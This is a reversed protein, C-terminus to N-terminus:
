RWGSGNWPSRACGPRTRRRCSSGRWAPSCGCWDSPASSSGRPSRAAASGCCCRPRTARPRHFPRAPIRRRATRWLPSTRRLSAGTQPRRTGAQDSGDANSRRGGRAGAGDRPTAPSGGSRRRTGRRTLRRRRPRTADRTPWSGTAARHRPRRCFVVAPRSSRSPRQSSARPSRRRRAGGRSPRDRAARGRRRGRLRHASGRAAEAAWRRRNGGDAVDPAASGGDVAGADGDVEACAPDVMAAGACVWVMTEGRGEHGVSDEAVVVVRWPGGAVVRGEDDRGDWALSLDVRTRGTEGRGLSRVALDAEDRVDARWRLVLVSDSLAAGITSADDVGDVDPLIRGPRASVEVWPADTDRVAFGDSAADQSFRTGSVARVLTRYREGPRLSADRVAFRPETTRWWPRVVVDGATVVQVVYAEAEPVATWAAAVVAGDHSEDVDDTASAPETVGDGDWVERPAPLTAEGIVRVRGDATPALVATWVEGGGALPAVVPEGVAAHLPVSWAAVRRGRLCRLPLWRNLRRRGRRRRERVFRPPQRAPCCAAPRRRMRRPRTPIPAFQCRGALVDLRGVCAVLEASAPSPSWGGAETASGPSRRAARDRHSGRARDSATSNTWGSSPSRTPGTRFLAPRGEGVNWALVSGGGRTDHRVVEEGDASVAQVFGSRVAVIENLGDGDLDAAALPGGTRGDSDLGVWLTREGGTSVLALSSRNSASDYLALAVADWAPFAADLPGVPLADAVPVLSRGLDITTAAPDAVGRLIAVAANGDATRSAGALFPEATCDCAAASVRPEDASLRSLSFEIPPCAPATCSAALRLVRGASSPVVVATDSPVVANRPATRPLSTPATPTM